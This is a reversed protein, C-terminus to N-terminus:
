GTSSWRLRGHTKDQSGTKARQEVGGKSNGVRRNTCAIEPDREIARWPGQIRDGVDGADGDPM